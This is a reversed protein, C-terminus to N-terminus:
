KAEFSEFGKFEGGYETDVRIVDASDPGTRCWVVFEKIKEQDGEAEIYVTEDPRNEAFGTLGLM